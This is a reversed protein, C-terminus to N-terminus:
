LGAALEVARDVHRLTREAHRGVAATGGHGRRAMAVAQATAALEHAARSLERHVAATAPPIHQDDDGPHAAHLRVALDRVVALRDTLENGAHVLGNHEADSLSGPTREDLLVQWYRDLARAFRDNSRRWLGSGLEREDARRQRLRAFPGTM